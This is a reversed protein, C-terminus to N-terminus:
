VAARRGPMPEACCYWPESIRPLPAGAPRLDPEPASVGAARGAARWLARFIEPAPRGAEQMEGVLCLAEEALADVRPDDHRWPHVLSGPDLAGVIGRVEPLRLLWSGPPVLLRIALQVPAVRDALGLGALWRLLDLYGDLGTWPTFPVFTPALGLGIADFRRAVEEFDARTHGKDLIALVRDDASEVATTVLLCGTGKLLPLLDAHRLLHEVKITVDYTLDPWEAHLAEVIPVAHGPGNFFDADGFTVHRAGAAVQRRVDELVVDRGVVRFRGGYVPVVPCHRCLHKCGRSAETHGALRQEGDPMVLRAYRELPPLVSRDPVRFRLRDLSVAPRARAAAEGHRLRAVLDALAPEAEGGLVADVGQARLHEQNPPAYLGFFCIAARPNAARVRPLATLALRTATHMPVHFGILDAAEVRRPDLAEVALDLCAVAAGAERLWPTAQALGYPQRGLDYTSILLVRV